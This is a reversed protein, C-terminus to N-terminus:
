VYIAMPVIEVAPYRIVPSELNIDVEPVSSFSQAIQESVSQAAIGLVSRRYLNITEQDTLIRTAKGIVTVHRYHGM